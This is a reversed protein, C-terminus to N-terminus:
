RDPLNSLPPSLRGHGINVIRRLRPQLAAYLRTDLQPPSTNITPDNNAPRIGIPGLPPGM